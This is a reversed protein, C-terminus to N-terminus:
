SSKEDKPQYYISFLAALSLIALIIMLSLWSPIKLLDLLLLKVGIFCLIAALGYKLYRLESVMSAVVFYLARLGMVALINSGFAIFPDQTVSFVAPISDVAFVIDTIEIIILALFLPTIFWIGEKKVFFKQGELHDVMPVWRRLQKVSWSNIIDKQEDSERLFSIGAYLLFGGFIYLIWHFQSVLQAGILIFIARFIVAGLVGLFLVKHQYNLPIKFAKFILLIVFLNDISLSKEVLYGTFFEIGKEVGYQSAFYVNFALAVSVWLLSELIAKNRTLIGDSKSVIWIDILLICIVGISFVLWMAPPVVTLQDINM